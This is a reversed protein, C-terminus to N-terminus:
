VAIGAVDLSRARAASALERDWTAFTTEASGYALASALHVADCGRLAHREALDAAEAVVGDSAEVIEMSDLREELSAKATALLAAGFRRGRGDAALAARVEVYTLRSTILLDSAGWLADALDWGDERTLLKVLASTEFYANV